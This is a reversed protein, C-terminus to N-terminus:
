NVTAPARRHMAPHWSADRAEVWLIDTTIVAGGGGAGGRGLWSYSGFSDGSMALSHSHPVPGSLFPELLFLITENAINETKFKYEIFKLVNFSCLLLENNNM